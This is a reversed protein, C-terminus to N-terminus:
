AAKGGPAQLRSVLGFGGVGIVPQEEALHSLLATSLSFLDSQM